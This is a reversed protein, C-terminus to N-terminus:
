QVMANIATSNATNTFARHIWTINATVYGYALIGGALGVLSGSRGSECVVSYATLLCLVTYGHILAYHPDPSIHGWVMDLLGILKACGGVTLARGLDLASYKIPRNGSILWRLETVGIVACFFAGLSLTTHLLLIYFSREGEYADKDDRHLPLVTALPEKSGGSSWIRFSEGLVLVVILKWYSKFGSNYLLHRYASKNLLVLDVLVIVPDYEIYKDAISGCKECKSVKLVSPSYRRYLEDVEAGCKICTYM